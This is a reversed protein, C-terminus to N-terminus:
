LSSQQAELLIAIGHSTGLRDAGANLFEIAQRLARIGGAAKVRMSNGVVSRMLKVDDITAGRPGFGTSTKVFDADSRLAVECAKVIEDRELYGTELIVKVIARKGRVCECAEQAAEVVAKMDDLLSELDGSKLFGINMVMDIETAGDQIARRAEFAKVSTESSGLPFGVVTGVAVDCEGILESALRVWCPSVCVSAVGWDVAEKCAREIDTRKLTPHLLSLDIAEALRRVLSM